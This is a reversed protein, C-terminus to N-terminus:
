GALHGVSRCAAAAYRGAYRGPRLGNRDLMAGIQRGDTFAVAAPGDWPEMLSAHYEFFARRDASMTTDGEWAEPVLMMMAHPLSRGAQVLLEAVNDLSSSDSQGSEIVPTLSEFPPLRPSTMQEEAVGMWRVNGKLTNIEGNHCLFRYPHAREWSPFTNTSFRSHVLALGSVVEPDALDPFCGALLSPRVLGKYVITRSSLSAVYGDEEGEVGRVAKEILRRVVYLTREFLSGDHPDHLDVGLPAVFLQRIVPRTARAAAGLCREEVPVDRWGLVRCGQKRVIDEIAHEVSRRRARDRPLFLMGVGYEGAAPLPIHAKVAAARLFAHPLHLLIGSGDSTAADSGVASRHELNALLWLANRVVDNSRAGHLHAVFGLGCM